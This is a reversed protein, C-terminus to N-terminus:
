SLSNSMNGGPDASDRQPCPQLGGAVEHGPDTFPKADPRIATLHRAQLNDTDMERNKVGVLHQQEGIVLPDIWDIRVIRGVEGRDPIRIARQARQPIEPIARRSVHLQLAVKEARVLREGLIPPEEDRAPLERQWAKQLIKERRGQKRRAGVFVQVQEIRRALRPRTKRVHRLAAPIWGADSQGISSDENRRARIGPRRFRAETPADLVCPLNGVWAAAINASGDREPEMQVVQIRELVHKWRPLTKMWKLRVVM